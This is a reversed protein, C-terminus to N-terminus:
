YGMSLAMEEFSRGQLPRSMQGLQMENAMLLNRLSEDMEIGALVPNKQRGEIGSFPSLMQNLLEESTEQTIQDQEGNIASRIRSDLMMRERM